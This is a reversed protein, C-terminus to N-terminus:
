SINIFKFSIMGGVLTSSTVLRYASCKCGPTIGVVGCLTIDPYQLVWCLWLAWHIVRPEYARCRPLGFFGRAASCLPKSKLFRIHLGPYRNYDWKSTATELGMYRIIPYSPVYSGVRITAPPFALLLCFVAKKSSTKTSDSGNERLSGLRGTRVMARVMPRCDPGATASFAQALGATGLAPRVPRKPDSNERILSIVNSLYRCSGALFFLVPHTSLNRM